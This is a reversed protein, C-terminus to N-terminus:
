TCASFSYRIGSLPYEAGIKEFGCVGKSLSIGKNKTDRGIIESNFIWGKFSNKPGVAWSESIADTLTQNANKCVSEGSECLTKTGSEMDEHCKQLLSGLSLYNPMYGVACSSTIKMMSALFNSIENSTKPISSSAPKRANIGIIVLFIIAVVMVILVFGVMEEQGRRNKMSIMKCNKEQLMFEELFANTM